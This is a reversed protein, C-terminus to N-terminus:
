AAQAGLVRYVSARGIELRHAIEAAKVGEKHLEMIRDAKARATPKRGKFKGESKAKAIGEKQRELMRTREWQAVAGLMHMILESTSSNTDLGMDLIRISAGKAKIRDVIELLHKMSRALRDLKTVILADGKRIFQMARELEKREAVSSVQEQFIEECGLAKLDRIQAEFGAQQDVTSTRAYGVLM